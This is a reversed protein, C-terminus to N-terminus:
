MAPFLTCVHMHTSCSVYMTSTHNHSTHHHTILPPIHHTTHHTIVHSTTTHSTHHSSHHTSMNHTGGAHVTDHSCCHVCEGVFPYSKMANKMVAKWGSLDGQREVVAWFFMWDMHTRHNMIFLCRRKFKGGFGFTRVRLGLFYETYRLGLTANCTCPTYMYGPLRPICCYM